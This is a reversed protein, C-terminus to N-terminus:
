TKIEMKKIKKNLNMRYKGEHCKETLNISLFGYDGNWCKKCIAQFKDYAMDPCVMDDYIKKTYHDNQKFVCVFNLNNRVVKIDVLTYCQSLYVCSINRHRGRVYYQKIKKQNELVCDDFIVLSDEACDDVSIINECNDFFYAVQEGIEIAIDEFMKKLLQYAQQEVSRSFIYVNTYPVWRKTIINWILTTKGSGSSGVILCRLPIPFINQTKKRTVPIPTIEYM